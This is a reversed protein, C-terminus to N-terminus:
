HRFGYVFQMKTNFNPTFEDCFIDELECAQSFEGKITSMHWCCARHWRAVLNKNEQATLKHAYHRINWEITWTNKRIIKKSLNNKTDQGLSLCSWKSWSNSVNLSLVRSIQQPNNYGKIKNHKSYTIIYQHTSKFRSTVAGLTDLSGFESASKPRWCHWRIKSRYTDMTKGTNPSAM